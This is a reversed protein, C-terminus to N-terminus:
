FDEWIGWMKKVVEHAVVSSHDAQSVFIYHGLISSQQSILSDFIAFFSALGKMYVTM